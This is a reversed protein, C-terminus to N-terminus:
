PASHTIRVRTEAVGAAVLDPRLTVDALSPRRPELAHGEDVPWVARGQDPAGVEVLGPQVSQQRLNTVEAQRQDGDDWGDCGVVASPACGMDWNLSAVSARPATAAIAIPTIAIPVAWAASLPPMRLQTSM